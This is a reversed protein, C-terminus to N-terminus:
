PLYELFAYLRLREVVDASTHGDWSPAHDLTHLHAATEWESEPLHYTISFTREHKELFHNQEKAEELAALYAAKSANIAEERTDFTGLSPLKSGFRASWRGNRRQYVCKGNRRINLKQGYPTALRINTRTCDFTNRNVHDVEYGDPIDGFMRLAIIRHLYGHPSPLHDQRHIYGGQTKHWSVQTLNRDIDSIRFYGLKTGPPRDKLRHKTVIPYTRPTGWEGPLEIGAIFWGPYMTGDAHLRSKWGMELARCLALFLAFRHQYLEAFTHYGDSVDDIVRGAM